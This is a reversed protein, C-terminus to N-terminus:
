PNLGTRPKIPFGTKPDNDAMGIALTFSFLEGPKLLYPGYQLGIFRNTPSTLPTTAGPSMVGGTMNSIYARTPREDVPWELFNALNTFIHGEGALENGHDFMGLQTTTRTDIYQETLILKNGSWGIDGASSGFYGIWPEDGYMYQIPVPVNGRNTLTVALIAYRNGATYFLFRTSDLPVNNLKLSHRSEITLNQGDNERVWSGKFEWDSPYNAVYPSEPSILGENANCWIHYWRTGDFYTMGTADNNLYQYDPDNPPLGGGIFLGKPYKNNSDKFRGLNILLKRGDPWTNRIFGRGLKKNWKFDYTPHAPTAQKQSRVVSRFPYLPMGWLYRIADEPVLDDTFELWAGNEGKLVFLGEAESSFKFTCRSAALGGVLCLTALTITLYRKLPM